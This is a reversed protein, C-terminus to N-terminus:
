QGFCNRLFVSEIAKVSLAHTGTLGPPHPDEYLLGCRSCCLETVTYNQNERALVIRGGCETCYPEFSSVFILYTSSCEPCRIGGGGNLMRRHKKGRNRELWVAAAVRGNLLM